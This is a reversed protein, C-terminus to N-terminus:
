SEETGLLDGLREQALERIKDFGKELEELRAQDKKDKEIAEPTEPAFGSEQEAQEDGLKFLQKDVEKIVPILSDLDFAAFLDHRLKEIVQLNPNKKKRGRRVPAKRVERRRVPAKRVARRRVPAKRVARRRVPTKKVVASKRGKFLKKIKPSKMAQQLSSLGFKNMNKKAFTLFTERKKAKKVM